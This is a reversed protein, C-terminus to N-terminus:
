TAPRAIVPPGESPGASLCAADATGVADYSPPRVVGVGSAALEPLGVGSPRLASGSLRLASGLVDTMPRDSTGEGVVASRAVDALVWGGRGVSVLPVWEGLVWAAVGDALGDWVSEGLLAGATLADELGDWVPVVADAVGFSVVGGCVLTDASKGARSAATKVNLAFSGAVYVHLRSSAAYV